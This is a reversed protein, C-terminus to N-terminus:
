KVVLFLSVFLGDTEKKHLIIINELRQHGVMEVLPIQKVGRDIRRSYM